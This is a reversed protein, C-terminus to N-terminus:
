RGILSGLHEKLALELLRAGESKPVVMEGNWPPIAGLWDSAIPLVGLGQGAALRAVRPLHWASSVVGIRRWGREAALRKILAIEQSTNEPAPEVLVQTGPIGFQEWILKTDAAFVGTTVLLPTRGQRLVMAGVRLRDGTAGMQPAGDFRRNSGGGLVCVVDYREASALVEPDIRRELATILVAGLWQNGGLTLVVFVITLAGGLRLHGLMFGTTALGGILLWVLGLPMLAFQVTLRASDDLAVMLVLMLALVILGAGWRWRHHRPALIVAPIGAMVLLIALLALWSM